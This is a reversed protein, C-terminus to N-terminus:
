QLNHSIQRQLRRFSTKSCVKCIYVPICSMV